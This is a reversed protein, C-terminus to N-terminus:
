TGRERLGGVATARGAGGRTPPRLELYAKLALLSAEWGTGIIRYYREWRPGDYFWEASGASPHGCGEGLM